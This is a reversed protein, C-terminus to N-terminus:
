GEHEVLGRVVSATEDSAGCDLDLSLPEGGRDTVSAPTEACVQAVPPRDPIITLDHHPALHRAAPLM